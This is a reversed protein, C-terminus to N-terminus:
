MHLMPTAIRVHPIMRPVRDTRPDTFVPVGIQHHHVAEFMPVSAGRHPELVLAGGAIRCRDGRGYAVSRQHQDGNLLDVLPHREVALPRSRRRRLHRLQAVGGARGARAQGAEGVAPRGHQELIQPCGPSVEGALRPCPVGDVDGGVLEPRQKSRGIAARTPNQAFASTSRVRESSAGPRIVSQEVSSKM